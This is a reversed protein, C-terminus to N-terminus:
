AVPDRCRGVVRKFLLFRMGQTLRRVDRVEGTDGRPFLRAAAWNFDFGVTVGVSQACPTPVRFRHM